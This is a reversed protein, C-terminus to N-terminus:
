APPEAPELLGAVRGIREEPEALIPRLQGSGARRVDRARVMVVLAVVAAVILPLAEPEAQAARGKRGAQVAAAERLIPAQAELGASMVRELKAWVEAPEVRGPAQGATAAKRGL